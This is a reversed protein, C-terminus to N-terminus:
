HRLCERFRVSAHGSRAEHNSGRETSVCESTSISIPLLASLVRHECEPYESHLVPFLKGHPRLQSQVPCYLHVTRVKHATRLRGLV